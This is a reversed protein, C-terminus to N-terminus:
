AIVLLWAPATLLSLPIGLGVMLAALPGDLRFQNAVVAAGIMPGMAAEFVTLTRAMEAVPTSPEWLVLCIAAILAPGLVLKYALGITLAQLREHIASLRLQMGVAVLAVPAVTDGIRALLGFVEDPVPLPRLALAAVLAALPPFTALRRLMARPSVKEGSYRAALMLGLTSLALYSGLQDIVIGLPLGERGLYAEIMPLGVFSTNALGATLVLAGVEGDTLGFRRAILAFFGAACGLMMWAGGAAMVFDVTFPVRHLHLLALAPLAVNIVYGNLAAPAEAPLRGSWRLVVGVLLCVLVLSVAAM